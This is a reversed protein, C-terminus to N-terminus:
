TLSDKMIHTSIGSLFSFLFGLNYPLLRFGRRLSFDGPAPLARGPTLTAGVGGGRGVAAGATM